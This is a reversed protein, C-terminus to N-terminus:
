SGPADVTAGWAALTARCWADLQGAYTAAAFDALDAITMTPRSVPEPRRLPVSTDDLYGGRGRRLSNFVDFPAANLCYIRFLSSWAADLSTRFVSPHQLAFAAFAQGHRSGWPEQRSHDLALLAQFRADCSDADATYRAGCERCTHASM